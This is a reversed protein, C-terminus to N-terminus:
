ECEWGKLLISNLNFVPVKVKVTMLTIVLVFLSNTKSLSFRFELKETNVVCLGQVVCMQRKFTFLIDKVIQVATNFCM